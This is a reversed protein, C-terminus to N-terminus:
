KKQQKQKTKNKRFINIWHKRFGLNKILFRSIIKSLIGQKHTIVQKQKISKLISEKGKTKSLQIIVHRLTPRKSSIKSPIM